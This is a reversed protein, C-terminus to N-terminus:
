GGEPEVSVPGEAVTPESLSPPENTLLDFEPGFQRLFELSYFRDFVSIPLTVVSNVYPILLVIFGCCCTMLGFTLLTMGYVAYMLMRFLGYAVFRGPRARFLPGFQRWAVTAKVGNRCMLPVVFDLLYLHVYGAVVLILLIAPVAILLGSFSGLSCTGKMIAPIAFVVPFALVVLLGLLTLTDFVVTWVFLSNGERRYKIWPESVAAQRTVVNSLFMFRGRAILWEFVFGLIVALLFGVVAAIIIFPLHAKVFDVVVPSIKKQDHVNYHTNFSFGNGGLSALWACFGVTFWLGADFPKFLFQKMREFAPGIPQLFSIAKDVSVVEMGM